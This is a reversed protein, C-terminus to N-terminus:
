RSRGSVVPVSGINHNKMLLAASVVSDELVCCAPDSTMLKSCTM